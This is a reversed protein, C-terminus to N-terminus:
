KFSKLEYGGSNRQFSTSLCLSLNNFSLLSGASSNSSVSSNKLDSISITVQLSNKSNKGVASFTHGYTLSLTYKANANASEQGMNEPSGSSLFCDLILTYLGLSSRSIKTPLAQSYVDRNLLPFVDLGNHVIKWTNKM